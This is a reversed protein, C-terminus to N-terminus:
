LYVVKFYLDSYFKPFSTPHFIPYKVSVCMVLLGGCCATWRYYMCRHTIHIDWIYDSTLFSTLSVKHTPQYASSLFIIECYNYLMDIGTVKRHLAYTRQRETAPTASDFGALPM